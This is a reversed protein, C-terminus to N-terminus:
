EEKKLYDLLFSRIGQIHHYNELLLCMDVVGFTFMSKEFNVLYSSQENSILNSVNVDLHALSVSLKAENQVKDYFKKLEDHARQLIGYLMPYVMMFYWEYPSREPTLEYEQMKKQLLDYSQQLQKYQQDYLQTLEAQNVDIALKTTQHLQKLIDAYVLVRKEVPMPIQYIFDTLYCFENDLQICYANAITKYIPLVHKSLARYAQLQKVLFEDSGKSIKFLYTKQIGTVKYAKNTLPVIEEVDLAYYNKLLTRVAQEDIM